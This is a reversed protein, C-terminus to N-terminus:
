EILVLGYYDHDCDRDTLVEIPFGHARATSFVDIGCSEMSPRAQSPHKCRKGCKDCLDCPGAGLGFARFHGDFFAERELTTVLEHVETDDDVHILLAHSYEDLMRRTRDPAPSNPPCTLRKGYGRCGFQCKMRVWEATVVTKPPIVKANRAGMEKARKVYKAFKRSAM